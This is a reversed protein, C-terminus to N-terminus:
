LDGGSLYAERQAPPMRALAEETADADSSKDLEAFADNGVVNQMAVPTKALNPPLPPRPKAGPQAATKGKAPRAVDIKGFGLAEREQSFFGAALAIQQDFSLAAYLDSGTVAKVHHNFRAKMDPAFFQPNAAKFDSVAKTWQSDAAAERAQSQQQEWVQNARVLAALEALERNAEAVGKKFDADGIDGSDWKAEIEAIRDNLAKIQAEADAPIVFPNQETLAAVATAAQQPEPEQAGAGDAGPDDGEEGEEGKGETDDTVQLVQEDEGGKAGEEDDDQVALEDDALLDHASAIDDEDPKHMAM